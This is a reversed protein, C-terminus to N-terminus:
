FVALMCFKYVPCSVDLCYCMDQVFLVCLNRCQWSLHCNRFLSGLKFISSSGLRVISGCYPYSNASGWKKGIEMLLWDKRMDMPLALLCEFKRDSSTLICYARLLDDRALNPISQLVAFIEKPCASKPEELRMQSWLYKFRIRSTVLCAFSHIRQESGRWGAKNTQNPWCPHHLITIVTLDLHQHHVQLITMFIKPLMWQWMKAMRLVQVLMKVQPLM